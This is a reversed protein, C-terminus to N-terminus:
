QIEAVLVVADRAPVVLNRVRGGQMSVTGDGSPWAQQYRRDVGQFANVTLDVTVPQRGVNFIILASTDATTRRFAYIGHDALLTEYDGLSLV